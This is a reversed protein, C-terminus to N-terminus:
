IKRAVIYRGDATEPFYGSELIEFGNTTIMRDLARASMFNVFPAKGLLQMIPVILKIMRMKLAPGSDKQALTKSIFVGGPKLLDHARRTAREVDELLHLLNFAMVADYAVGDLKPSHIDGVVFSVNGIGQDAAKGQAIRVMESSIDSATIKAVDNALLLATSGTGCGVELIHDTASLYGRTKNLTTNYGDIDGIPSKAYKEAAKDWFEATATM